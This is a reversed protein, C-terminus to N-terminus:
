GMDVWSKLDEPITFTVREGYEVNIMRQFLSMSFAHHHGRFILHRFFRIPTFAVSLLWPLRLVVGEIIKGGVFLPLALNKCAEQGMLKEMYIRPLSKLGFISLYWPIMDELMALNAAALSKGQPNQEVGVYHREQYLDYFRGADEIDDPVYAFSHPEGPPHIGMMVAFVRWTYFYDNEQEKSLKYGLKRLGIILLYSFATITGLMDEHNIFEGYKARYEPLYQPCIHRIGAHLLRLKQADIVAKGGAEFGDASNVNILMQLVALLRHYPHRELNGSLHLIHTLNPAQYGEPLSKTLLVLAGPFAHDIFVAEGRKIRERDINEPLQNTAEFFAELEPFVEKPPLDNNQDLKKFVETAHKIEGDELIKAISEDALPDGQTRLHDLFENTWRSM